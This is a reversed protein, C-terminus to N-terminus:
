ELHLGSGYRYPESSLCRSSYCLQHTGKPNSFPETVTDFVDSIYGVQDDILEGKTKEIREWDYHKLAFKTYAEKGETLMRSSSYLLRNPSVSTNVLVTSCSNLILLAVPAILTPPGFGMSLKVLAAVSSFVTAPAKHTLKGGLGGAEVGEFRSGLHHPDSGLMFNVSDNISNM